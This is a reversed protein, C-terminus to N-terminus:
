HSLMCWSALQITGVVSSEKHYTKATYINKSACESRYTAFLETWKAMDIWTYCQFTDVCELKPYFWIVTIPVKCADTRLLSQNAFGWVVKTAMM